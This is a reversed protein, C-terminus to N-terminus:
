QVEVCTRFASLSNTTPKLEPNVEFTEGSKGTPMLIQHTRPPCPAWTCHANPHDFRSTRDAILPRRRATGEFSMPNLCLDRRSRSAGVHNRANPFGSM